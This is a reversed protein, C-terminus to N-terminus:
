SANYPTPEGLYDWGTWVFQGAVFPHRALTAFVKDASSGFDAAYLEYASVQRRASDGGSTDRVPGTPEKSVPFLYEGRSSLAAAAETSLITKTPFKEHFAPYQPPTKIGPFQAFAPTDRIGEGQYNLAIVDTAAAFPSNAKASNMSATALRT